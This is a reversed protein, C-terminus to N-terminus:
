RTRVASLAREADATSRYGGMFVQFLNNGLANTYLYGIDQLSAFQSLDTQMFTGIQITHIPDTSEQATTNQPLLLLFAALISLITLSRM